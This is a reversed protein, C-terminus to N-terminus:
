QVSFDTSATSSLASADVEYTGTPDQQKLRFQYTAVGNVDTTAKGTVFAGSAKKITFNVTAKSVPFTGETVTAKISVSQSRTYITKDTSVAMDPQYPQPPNPGIAVKVAAQTATIWEVTVSVGATTDSFNQGPLLAANGLWQWINTDTVPNMDLLNSTNGSGETGLSLLVGDQVTSAIGATSATNSLFSDFGISKRAELYYCTKAGTTPDASKLIKIAKPGSGASEFAELIYTGSATVTTIPPASGYNLWGLKEKQFANFHGPYASGMADVLHGYDIVFCTGPAPPYTSSLVSGITSTGCDLAHSHMLGLGHGLEHATVALELNGNVWSHSPTGGVISLGWWGCANQPFAYLFHAYNSLNVGAAAAASQAASAITSYDCVTSTAPITYWGVVDGNLWAQQYSNELYFDSVTGFVVGQVDAVTYPQTPNDQFNVLIVLTKLEGITSPVPAPTIHKVNGSGSSSLALTNDLRMGKVRITAGTLLDTPPPAAFKLSLRSEKTKLFYHQRSHDAYDEDILELTGELDIEQEIYAQVSAPLAARTSAPLALMMAEGPNEEMLSLMQDHRLAATEILDKIMASREGPAAKQYRSGQNLLTQTLAAADPRLGNGDPVSPQALLDNPPLLTLAGSLFLALLCSLVSKIFHRPTTTPYRPIM